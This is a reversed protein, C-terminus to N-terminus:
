PHGRDRRRVNGGSHRGRCLEGDYRPAAKRTVGGRLTTGPRTAGSLEEYTCAVGRKVFPREITEPLATFYRMCAPRHWATRAGACAETQATIVVSWRQTADSFVLDCRYLSMCHRALGVALVFDRLARTWGHLETPKDAALTWQRYRETNNGDLYRRAFKAKHRRGSGLASACCRQLM